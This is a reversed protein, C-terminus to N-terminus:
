DKKNDEGIKVWDDYKMIVLNKTKCDWISIYDKSVVMHSEWSGFKSYLMFTCLDTSTIFESKGILHNHTTAASDKESKFTLMGKHIKDVHTVENKKNFKIEYDNGIIFIGNELSGTLIYVKKQKNIVVPIINYNSKKYFKFITDKNQSVLELTKKRMECLDREYPNLERETEDVIASKVNYTSDFSIVGLTKPNEDKSFFVCKSVNGETYSFYGGINQTKQPFKEMFIDSGYWSAMESRYLIHAEAVISARAKEVKNQSFTLGSIFLLIYFSIKAKM